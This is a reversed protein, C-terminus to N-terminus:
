MPASSSGRGILSSLKRLGREGGLQSVVEVMEQRSLGSCAAATEITDGPQSYAVTLAAVAQEVKVAPLGLNEGISATSLDGDLRSLM